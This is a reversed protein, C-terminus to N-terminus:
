RYFRQAPGVRGRRMRPEGEGASPRGQRSQASRPSPRQSRNPGPDPPRDARRGPSGTCRGAGAGTATGPGASTAATRGASRCSSACPCVSSRAAFEILERPSPGASSNPVRLPGLVIFAVWFIQCRPPPLAVTYAGAGPEAELRDRALVAVPLVRVRGAELDPLDVAQQARCARGCRGSPRSSGARGATTRLGRAARGLPEVVGRAALPTGLLWTM